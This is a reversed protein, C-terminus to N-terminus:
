TTAYLDILAKVIASEDEKNDTPKEVYVKLTRNKAQQQLNKQKDMAFPPKSISATLGEPTRGSAGYQGYGEETLGKAEAILGSHSDHMESGEAPIAVGRLTGVHDKVMLEHMIEGLKSPHPNFPRVTFSFQDLSWTSLARDVEQPTGAFSISVDGDDVLTEIISRFRSVASKAGLHREGITDDVALVNLAPVSIFKSHRVENTTVMEDNIEDRVKDYTSRERMRIDQAVRWTHVTYGHYQHKRPQMVYTDADDAKPERVRHAVPKGRLDQLLKLEPGAELPSDGILIRYRCFLYATQRGM